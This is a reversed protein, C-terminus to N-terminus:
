QGMISYENLINDYYIIHNLHEKMLEKYEQTSFGKHLLQERLIRGPIKNDYEESLNEIEKLM